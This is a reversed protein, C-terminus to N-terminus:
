SDVECVKCKIRTPTKYRGCIPCIHGSMREYKNIIDEIDDNTPAVYVRLMNWKEKADLIEFEDECHHFAIADDLEDIMDLAMDEWGVPIFDLIEVCYYDDDIKLWPYRECLKKNEEKARM